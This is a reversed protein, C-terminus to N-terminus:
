KAGLLALIQGKPKSTSKSFKTNWSGGSNYAAKMAAISFPFMFLVVFLLMGAAGCDVGPASRKPSANLMRCGKVPPPIVTASASITTSRSRRRGRELKFSASAKHM